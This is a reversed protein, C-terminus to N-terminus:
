LAVRIVRRVAPEESAQGFPKAQDAVIPDADAQAIPRPGREREMGLDIIQRCEDLVESCRPEVQERKRATPRDRERLRRLIGIADIAHDEIAAVQEALPQRRLLDALREDPRHSRVPPEAGSRQRVDEMRGAVDLHAPVEVREMAVAGLGLHRCRQELQSVREVGPREDIAHAHRHQYQM